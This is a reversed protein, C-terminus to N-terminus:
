HATGRKTEEDRASFDRTGGPTVGYDNRATVRWWYADAGRSRLDVAASLTRSPNSPREVVTTFVPREFRDDAALEVLYSSANAVSNWTLTVRPDVGVAHNAPAVLDFAEPGVPLGAFVHSLFFERFVAARPLSRDDVCYFQAYEGGRANRLVLADSIPPTGGDGAYLKAVTWGPDLNGVRLARPSDFAALDPLEAADPGLDMHGSGSVLQPLAPDLVDDAAYKGAHDKDDQLDTTVYHSFPNNGTWLLSNGADLWREALSGDKQGAYAVAPASDLCVLWDRPADHLYDDLWRELAKQESPGFVQAEFGAARLDDALATAVSWQEDASMCHEAVIPAFLAVAPALPRVFVTQATTEVHNGSRATLRLTYEGPGRYTHRPRRDEMHVTQFTNSAGDGWDFTLEAAGLGPYHLHGTAVVERGLRPASPRIEVLHPEAVGDRDFVDFQQTAELGRSDAVSLTVHLYMGDGSEVPTYTASAGTLTAWGPHVHHEHVLDIVWRVTLPVGAADDEADQVTAVFALPQGIAYLSDPAPSVLATIAPPTDDVYVTQALVGIAGGPDTVTLRVFYDQGLPYTNTAVATTAHTGDGLDWDFALPKGEPDYSATADFTVTLPSPGFAPACTALAVPPQNAGTCRIRFVQNQWMSLYYLDGNGPDAVLDLPGGADTAFEEDAVIAGGVVLLCRIWGDTYDCYFVRGAYHQPYESGTYCCIGSTCHGTFGAPKADDHHYCGLPATFLSMDDCFGSPDAGDYSGQADPGERCPWGFNEGGACSDIEEWTSWGVDSVLLQGPSGSGPAVCFRFPNRLGMAWIRSTADSAQGTFFPNDPLGLGTAPDIRLIKGSYSTSSQARFAGIDEGLDFKGPGFGNPDNGGVDTLNSHGGDGCSVFLSGDAGFRLDGVSHSYYISPIGEPWTAGLLVTRSAPDAVLDGNIDIATTYRTLRGFSEQESDDGDENPDVIYLLYVFGNSAWDPDVAVSLLGRDGNDLIETRLDIVPKARRIGDRADWLLGSKEAVLLDSTGAFAICTPRDWAGVIKWASFGAPLSQAHLASPSAGLLPALLGFVVSRSSARIRSRCHM